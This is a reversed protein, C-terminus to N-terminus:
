GLKQVEEELRKVFSRAEGWFVSVEFLNQFYTDLYDEILSEEALSAAPDTKKSFQVAVKIRTHIGRLSLVLWRFIIRFDWDSLSYGIFVLTNNSIAQIIPSPFM